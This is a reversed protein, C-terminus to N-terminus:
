VNQIYLINPKNGECHNFMILVSFFVVTNKKYFSVLIKKLENLFFVFVILDFFIFFYTVFTFFHLSITDYSFFKWNLFILFM